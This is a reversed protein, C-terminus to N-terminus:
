CPITNELKHGYSRRENCTPEESIQLNHDLINDTMDGGGILVGSEVKVFHICILEVGGGKGGASPGKKAMRM